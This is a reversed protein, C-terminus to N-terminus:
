IKSLIIETEENVRETLEATATDKVCVASASTDTALDGVGLKAKRILLTYIKM